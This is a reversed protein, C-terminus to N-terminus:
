GPEQEQDEAKAYGRLLDKMIKETIVLINRCVIVALGRDIELRRLIHTIRVVLNGLRRKNFRYLLFEPGAEDVYSRHSEM